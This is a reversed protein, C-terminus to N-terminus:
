SFLEKITDSSVERVEGRKLDGLSFPGYAARILRNVTLGLHECIRRVERYKGEKIALTLWSNRGESKQELRAEIPRLRQRRGTRPDKLAIGEGLAALKEEEVQGYVRVRYRRVWGNEPLELHRALRGDNTLLLLGETNIDLRGVAVVRPLNSPLIDFVTKRGEPDRSTTVVGRPKHFLWLRTGEKQRLLVGDVVIAQTSTVNCAPTAIVAGDVQVRGQVIWREAERRSCMGARAMVKAIREGKNAM